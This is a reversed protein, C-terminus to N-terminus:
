LCDRAIDVGPLNVHHLYARKTQARDVADTSNVFKYFNVFDAEDFKGGSHKFFEQKVWEQKSIGPGHSPKNVLNAVRDVAVWDFEPLCYEQEM